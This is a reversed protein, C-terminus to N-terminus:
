SLRAIAALLLMRVLSVLIERRPTGGNHPRRLGSWGLAAALILAILAGDAVRNAPLFRAGLPELAVRDLLVIVLMAWPLRAMVRAAPGRAGWFGVLALIVLLWGLRGISPPEGWALARATALRLLLPGPWFARWAGACGCA